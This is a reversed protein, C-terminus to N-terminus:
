SPCIIRHAVHSARAPERRGKEMRGNRETSAHLGKRGYLGRRPAPGLLTSLFDQGLERFQHAVKTPGLMRKLECHRGSTPLRDERVAISGSDCRASSGDRRHRISGSRHRKRIAVMLSM